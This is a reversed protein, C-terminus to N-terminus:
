RRKSRTTKNYAELYLPKWYVTFFGQGLKRSNKEAEKRDKGSLVYEQTKEEIRDTVSIEIIKDTIDGNGDRVANYLATQYTNSTSGSRMKLTPDIVGATNNWIARTDRM